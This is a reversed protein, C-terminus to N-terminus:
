LLYRLRYGCNGRPIGSGDLPCKRCAALWPWVCAGARFVLETEGGGEMDECLLDYV